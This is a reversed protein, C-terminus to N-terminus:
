PRRNFTEITGGAQLHNDLRRYTEELSERRQLQWAYAVTVFSSFSQYFVEIWGEIGDRWAKGRILRRWVERGITGFFSRLRVPPYSSETRRRADLPAWAATKAVMAALDRHGLHIFPNTLEGVNGEVEAAEHLSGSWGRLKSREVLRRHADPWWGGNRMPRGLFVNLSPITYVSAGGASVSRQIEDALERTVREDADVYLLWDGTALEALRDRQGAFGRWEEEYVRAGLMRAVDASRDSSRGDVLVVVEHAWELMALCGPLMAEENSAMILASISTM